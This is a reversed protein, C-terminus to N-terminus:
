KRRSTKTVYNTVARVSYLTYYEITYYVTGNSFIDCESM